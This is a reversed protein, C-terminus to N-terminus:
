LLKGRQAFVIDIYDTMQENMRHPFTLGFPLLWEPHKQFVTPVVDQSIEKTRDRWAAWSQTLEPHSFEMTGRESHWRLFEASNNPRYNCFTLESAMPWLLTVERRCLRRVLANLAGGITYTHPKFTEKEQEPILGFNLELIREQSWYPSPFGPSNSEADGEQLIRRIWASILGECSSAGKAWESYISLLFFAPWESEGLLSVKPIQEDLPITFCANDYVDPVVRQTLFRASLWGLVLLTRAGRVVEREAFVRSAEIWHRRVNLEDTLLDFNKLLAAWLISISPGYVKTTLNEAEVLRFITAAIITWGELAAIHNGAKEYQEVVYSGLLVTSEISRKTANKNPKKPQNEDLFRELFLAFKERPFRDRFDAIYFGIFERFDSLKDPLYSGHADKFRKLLQGKQVIELKPHGARVWTESFQKISSIADGRIEGNTVFYPTHPESKSLGPATPPLQVLHEVEGRYKDWDTLAIDRQKLQYARLKGDPGRTIIDKGLEGQGGRSIHLIMEGESALVQCFPITYGLEHVNILWNEILRDLM